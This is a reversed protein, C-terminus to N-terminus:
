HEFGGRVDSKGVHSGDRHKIRCGGRWREKYCRERCCTEAVNM